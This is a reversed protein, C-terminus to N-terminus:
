KIRTTTKLEFGEAGGGIKFAEWIEGPNLDVTITYFGPEAAGVTPPAVYFTPTIAVSGVKLEFTTTFKETIFTFLVQSPRTASPQGSVKGGGVTFASEAYTALAAFKTELRPEGDILLWLKEVGAGGTFIVHQLPALTIETKTNVFDGNFIGVTSKVKVPFNTHNWVGWTVDTAWAVPATVTSEAEGNAMFLEGSKAEASATHEVVRLLYKTLVADIDEGLSQFGTGIDHVKSEGKLM